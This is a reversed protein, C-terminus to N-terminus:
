VHFRSYFKKAERIQSFIEGLISGEKAQAQPDWVQRSEEETIFFRKDWEDDGYCYHVMDGSLKAQPLYNHDISHTLSIRLDLKLTALGFAYMSIEWLRPPFADIAELWAQALPAALSVPIVYPVGCCLEDGRQKLAGDAIGIRRSALKVEDRDYDLYSYYDGALARPFVSPRVFIMDPDCLVINEKRDDLMRAVHLLTAATNRPPYNFKSPTFRYNPASRVIGGARVIERFGDHWGEDAKHVIFVPVLNVRTLCSFHFLKCQWAMYPNNEASVVILHSSM